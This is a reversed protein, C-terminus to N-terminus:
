VDEERAELERQERGDHLEDHGSPASSGVGGENLAKEAEGLLETHGKLRRIDPANIMM